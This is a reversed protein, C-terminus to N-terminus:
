PTLAQAPAPQTDRYERLLDDWTLPVALGYGQGFQCGLSRVAELHAPTEIGEITLEIGLSLCITVAAQTVAEAFQRTPGAVLEATISRDVKLGSIQMSQLRMLNSYGSGFDDMTVCVGLERLKLVAQAACDDDYILATETLELELQKPSVGGAALIEQLTQVFDARLLQVASVNVSLKIEPWERAHRCAEVLVWRGLDMILGSREAIPIFEAPSIRGLERHTWRLLAEAKVVQGTDLVFIPQYVLHLEQRAIAQGLDRSLVQDRETVSDQQAHYRRVQSRGSRKVSYMASDAHRLLSAADQADDPYLCLGISLTLNVGQQSKAHEHIHRQLETAVQIAQEATHHPLLAVFEDGSIRYLGSGAPIHREMEAAACRLVEDGKEHGLTDNIVKFNDIDIFLVAFPVGERSGGWPGGSILEGMDQNLRLRGPLGTLLDTYALRALTEREGRLRGLTDNRQRLVSAGYLTMFSALSTQLLTGVHGPQLAGDRAWAQWVLLGALGSPGTLIVVLARRLNVPLESLTAWAVVPSLWVLLQAVEELQRTPDPLYLAMLVLKASMMLGPYYVLWKPVAGVDLRRSLTSLWVGVVVVLVSTNLWLDIGSDWADHTSLFISGLCSAIILPLCSILVRHWTMELDDWSTNDQGVKSM